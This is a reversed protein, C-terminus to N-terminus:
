TLHQYQIYVRTMPLWVPFFSSDLSRLGTGVERDVNIQAELFDLSFSDMIDSIEEWHCCSFTVPFKFKHFSWRNSGPVIRSSRTYLPIMQLIDSCIKYRHSIWENYASDAFTICRQTAILKNKCLIYDDNEAGSRYCLMWQWKNRLVGIKLTIWGNKVVSNRFYILTWRSQSGQKKTTSCPPIWTTRSPTQTRFENWYLESNVRAYNMRCRHNNILWKGM